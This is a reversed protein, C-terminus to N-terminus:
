FSVGKLTEGASGAGCKGERQGELRQEPGPAAPDRGQCRSHGRPRLQEPAEGVGCCSPSSGASRGAGPVARQEADRGDGRESGAGPFLGQGSRNGLTRM